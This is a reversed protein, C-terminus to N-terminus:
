SPSQRRVSQIVANVAEVIRTGRRFFGLERVVESMIEDDTRLKGDSEVWRVMAELERAHYDAIPRGPAVLPKASRVATAAIPAVPQAPVLPIAPPQLWPADGRADEADALQLAAEFAKLVRQIEEERRLFWDTSWIRCFRWSLAELQQQRLRDRDRATPASHYSAGDCEIALVFRGPKEPHMAVIDIRYKSSGVQGVLKLGRATLADFVAQEFDNLPVDTAAGLGLSRGGSAAYELYARLHRVGDKPYEPDMDVHSFSSVVTMRRRARTIAVNLRREGGQQLLPGFRYVLRGAENKGYGVSLIIADREDGQVRELNKVFFRESKNAAFFEELDSRGQRERDLEMEIRKAHTIGMTIVGLSEDPRERAHEMILEVVRRVEPSASQEQGAQSPDHPVLEHCIAKRLGPGPFTILRGGYIRHNSYAILAEDRSRYHWDLSWPPELFASMVDLISEFGGTAGLEDVDSEDDGAAFFTTPPLQRRDGAVVSRRGRLLSTVADEPLVQSAEDFVVIDFHPKGGPIIQSVSLPSAMWCPRLALLVNPAESFLRRLPLHKSRKQAERGVLASESPFKNRTDIAAQAHARRVRQVALDLREADLSRFDAAIQDHYRGRFAPVSPDSLQIEEISSTLWVHRLRDPWLQPAPKRQRIDELVPALGWKALRREIEGLRLLQAPTVGDEALARLWCGLASVQSDELHRQPFAKLLGELDEVVASWASVMAECDPSWLPLVVPSTVTWWKRLLTQALEALVLAQPPTIKGERCVARVDRLARRFTPSFLAAWWRRAVSRAPRLATVLADFPLAFVDEWCVTLLGRIETLLQVLRRQDGITRPRKIGAESVVADLSAECATWPAGAVRRAREIARRVAEEDAFVAGAWASPSDGTVLDAHFAAERLLECGEEVDSGTITQVTQRALRAQSQDGEPLRLLRGYMQYLSLGAALRTTHMSAVHQNLRQRREIFTAHAQATDPVTADRILTLSEQLQQAVMRRSTEAGHCDLCLHALELDSLRNKVVDLAARKEAVFLVTKGRSVLEAILNAITQSKGTGPPGSIVGNQGGVAAAIAQQQSSDADLILFENDPRSRDFESPDVSARGGRAHGRAEDDGAIGAILNNRALAEALERLDKVIALKQFAFNGIVWREKIDFGPVARAAMKLRAFVPDLDLAEGEDEGRVVALLADPAVSVGHDTELAHVLVDNVQTDGRRRLLWRSGRGGRSIAEIPVLLVPAATDRGEDRAKWEALGVALFLTELGKEEFNSAARSAIEKLSGAARTLDVPSFLNSEGFLDGLSVGDDPASGSQFLARLAGVPAASLELTGVQLQRFYLLNNRRSLDVLKHIWAQRAAEVKAVREASM